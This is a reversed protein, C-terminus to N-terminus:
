AARYPSQQMREAMEERVLAMEQRCFDAVADRFNRARIYHASYTPTPLYGRQVKHPGQTGAEVRKLGHAIAYEIAQYYCAEFHLFPYDRACGWNRGFLAESGRLNLAGAVPRGNAEAVILVVRDGMVQSLLPFFKRSLYPYGWKRDYTDIYFRYFSDWHRKTIEDGTLARVAIGQDRVAQREKRIAKRKRSALAALFDDFSHYGRNHWHFQQGLRAVWGAEQCLPWEAESM